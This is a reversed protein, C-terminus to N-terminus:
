TCRNGMELDISVTQQRLPYRSLLCQTEASATQLQVGVGGIRIKDVTVLVILREEPHDIEIFPNPLACKVFIRQAYGAM